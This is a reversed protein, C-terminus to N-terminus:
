RIRSARKNLEDNIKADRIAAALERATAKDTKSLAEAVAIGAQAAEQKFKEDGILSKLTTAIRQEPVTAMASIVLKKDDDSRASKLVALLADARTKVDGNEANKV